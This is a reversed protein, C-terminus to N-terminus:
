FCRFLNAVIRNKCSREFAYRLGPNGRPTSAAGSESREIRAVEEDHGRMATRLVADSREGIGPRLKRLLRLRIGAMWTTGSLPRPPTLRGARRVTRATKGCVARWNTTGEDLSDRQKGPRTFRSRDPMRSPTNKGQSATALASLVCETWAEAEVWAYRHLDRQM